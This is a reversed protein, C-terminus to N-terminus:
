ELSRLLLHFVALKAAKGPKMAADIRQHMLGRQEHRRCSSWSSRPRATGWARGLSRRGVVFLTLLGAAGLMVWLDFVLFAPPVPVDVLMATVGLILLINFVNSGVITGVVLDAQRRLGAVVSTALTAAAHTKSPPRKRHSRTPKPRRGM